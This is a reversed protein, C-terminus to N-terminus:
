PAPGFDTPRQEHGDSRARQLPDFLAFRDGRAAGGGGGSPDGWVISGHSHPGVALEVLAPRVGRAFGDALAVEVEGGLSGPAARLVAGGELGAHGVDAPGVARQLVVGARRGRLAEVLSGRGQEVLRLVDHVGDPGLDQGLEHLLVLAATEAAPEGSDLATASATALTAPSRRAVAPRPPTSPPG